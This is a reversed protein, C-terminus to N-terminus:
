GAAPTRKGASDVALALGFLVAVGLHYIVDGINPLYIIGLVSPTILIWVVAGVDVLVAVFAFIRAYDARPSVAVGVAFLLIGQVAHWGNYDLGLFLKNTIAGGTSFDPNTILGGISHLVILGGLILCTWQTVTWKSM